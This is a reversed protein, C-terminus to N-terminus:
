VASAMQNFTEDYVNDAIASDAILVEVPNRGHDTLTDKARLTMRQGGPLPDSVLVAVDSMGSFMASEAALMVPPGDLIVYTYTSELADLLHELREANSQDFLDASGSGASIVHLRSAPDRQIVNQFTNTGVLLDSFGPNFNMGVQNAIRPTRMNMDVLVVREGEDSIKRAINLAAYNNMSQRQPSCVFVRLGEGDMKKSCILRSVRLVAEAKDLGPMTHLSETDDHSVDSPVGIENPHVQHDDRDASIPDISNEDDILADMVEPADTQKSIQPTEQEASLDPYEVRGSSRPPSKAQAPAGSLAVLEASVIIGIALFASAFTTVLLIPLKKPFSPQSSPSARSVIRAETPLEQLDAQATAERYQALYSELLDRQAKAERELSRLEVSEDNSRESEQSVSNLSARLANERAGAIRAENELGGVVKEVEDRMQRKLNKIDATIERMRPHAPLLTASLEAQRRQLTVQQEQLRQIIPSRLVDSASALNGGSDLMERILQARAQAEARATRATILERNLGTLQQSSLTTNNTGQVLGNASRYNAAAAEAATVKGRLADIQQELWSAAERTAQRRAERQMQVYEDAVSNAVRAAVMPDISSFVIEIVRSNDVQYVSLKSGYRQIIKEEIKVDSTPRALGVLILFEKFYSANKGDSNFEPLDALKQDVVVRRALDNSLLLQVHSAVALADPRTQTPTEGKPRSYVTQRDEVLINAKSSYLPTLSFLVVLTIASVIFVPIIVWLKKAWVAHLLDSFTLDPESGYDVPIPAASEFTKEPARYVNM